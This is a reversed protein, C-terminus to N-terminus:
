KYYEIKSGKVLIFESPNEIRGNLNYKNTPNYSPRLNFEKRISLIIEHAIQRVVAFHLYKFPEGKQYPDDIISNNTLYFLSETAKSVKYYKEIVGPDVHTGGDKNSMYLIMERRSFTLQDSILINQNWWSDFDVWKKHISKNSNLIPLFVPEVKKYGNKNTIIQTPFVTSVFYVANKPFSATSCFQMNRQRQLLNLLSASYPTQHVLVRINTALQKSYNFKGKDYNNCSDILFELQELLM